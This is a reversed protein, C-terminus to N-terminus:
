HEVAMCDCADVRANVAVSIPPWLNEGGVAFSRTRTPHGACREPRFEDCFGTSSIMASTGGLTTPLRTVSPRVSELRSDRAQGAIDRRADEDLPPRSGASTSRVASNGPPGGFRVNSDTCEVTASASCILAIGRTTPLSHQSGVCTFRPVTDCSTGVAALQGGIGKRVKPFEAIARHVVELDLLRRWALSGLHEDLGQPRENRRSRCHLLRPKLFRGRCAAASSSSCRIQGDM